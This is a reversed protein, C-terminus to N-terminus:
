SILRIDGSLVVPRTFKKYVGRGGEILENSYVPKIGDALSHTIHYMGGMELRNISGDVSCLIAIAKSDAFYGLAVANVVVPSNEVQEDSPNYIITIHHLVVRFGDPVAVLELLKNRSSESLVYGIYRSM